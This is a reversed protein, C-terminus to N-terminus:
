WLDSDMYMLLPLIIFLLLTEINTYKTYEKEVQDLVGLWGDYRPM